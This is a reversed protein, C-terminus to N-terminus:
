VTQVRGLEFVESEHSSSAAITPLKRLPLVHVDIKTRGIDRFVQGLFDGLTKETYQLLCQLVRDLMTTRSMELDKQVTPRILYFQRHMIRSDSKGGLFHYVFM